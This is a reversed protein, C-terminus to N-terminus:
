SKLSLKQQTQDKDWKKIEVLNQGTNFFVVKVHNFDVIDM